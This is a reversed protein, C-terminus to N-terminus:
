QIKDMYKYIFLYIENDKSYEYIGDEHNNIDYKIM